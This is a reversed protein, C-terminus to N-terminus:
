SSKERLRTGRKNCESKSKDNNNKQKITTNSCYKKLRLGQRQEREERREEKPLFKPSYLLVFDKLKILPDNFWIKNGTYFTMLIM